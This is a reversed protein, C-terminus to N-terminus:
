NSPRLIAEGACKTYWKEPINRMNYEILQGFKMVQNGKSSSIHAIHANSNNITWNTVDYINYIVKAKKYLRKGVYGFLWSLFAFIEFM